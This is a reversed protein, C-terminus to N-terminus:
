NNISPYNSPVSHPRLTIMILITDAKREQGAEPEEGLVKRRHGVEDDGDSDHEKEEGDKSKHCCRGFVPSLLKRHFIDVEPREPDQQSHVGAQHPHDEEQLEGGDEGRDVEAVLEVHFSNEGKLM